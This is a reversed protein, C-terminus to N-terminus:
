RTAGKKRRMTMRKGRRAGVTTPRSTTALQERAVRVAVVVVARGATGVLAAAGASVERGAPAPAGAGAPAAGPPGPPGAGSGTGRGYLRTMVGAVFVRSPNNLVWRMPLRRINSNGRLTIFLSMRTTGRTALAGAPPGYPPWCTPREITM